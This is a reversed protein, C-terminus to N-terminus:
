TVRVTKCQLEIGLFPVPVQDTVLCRYEKDTIRDFERVENMRHLWTWYRINLISVAHKVEQRALWPCGVHQSINVALLTNWGAVAFLVTEPYVSVFQIV